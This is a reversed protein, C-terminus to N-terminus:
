VPYLTISELMVDRRANAVQCLIAVLIAAMLLFAPHRKLISVADVSQM